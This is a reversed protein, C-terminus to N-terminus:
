LRVPPDRRSAGRGGSRSACRMRSSTAGDTIEGIIAPTRKCRRGARPRLHGARRRGAPLLAVVERGMNGAGGTVLVRM